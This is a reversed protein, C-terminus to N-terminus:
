VIKIPSRKLTKPLMKIHLLSQPLSPSSPVLPTRILKINFITVQCKCRQGEGVTLLIKGKVNHYDQRLDATMQAM